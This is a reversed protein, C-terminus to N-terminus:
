EIPTLKLVCISNEPILVQFSKRVTGLDKTHPVVAETYKVQRGFRAAMNRLAPREGPNMAPMVPAAYEPNSSYYDNDGQNIVSPDHSSIFELTATYKTNSGTNITFNKDLCESNVMKVFIKGSETDITSSTYVSTDAKNGNMVASMDFTRNGSEQFLYQYYYNCSRWMGRNDFWIFNSNWKNIGKKCFLPAYTAMVVMDSNRELSTWYAAEALASSFANNSNANAYEGIFVRTPKKRDY